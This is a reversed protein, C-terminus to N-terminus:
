LKGLLANRDLIVALVVSIGSNGILLVPNEIREASSSGVM